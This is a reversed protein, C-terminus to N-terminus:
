SESSPVTISLPKDHLVSYTDANLTPPNNTVNINVTAPVTVAGDSVNYTFSDIGVFGPNPTYDFNGLLNFYGLTGNSPGTVLTASLMDLDSDTDNSLVGPSGLLLQDHLVSYTDANLTPPNNTVNINVTTPVTVAGDSVNYTFSDIGVFGPNPTYDFNGLLNFYGLTGNSPGTVLTASLMDLDSDTDNSLVGPSGYLLQDHLVSYTDPNATPPNNTVNNDGYRSLRLGDSVSYTFTDTGCLRTLLTLFDGL